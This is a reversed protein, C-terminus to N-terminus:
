LSDKASASAKSGNPDQPAATAPAGWTMSLEGVLAAEAPPPTGATGTQTRRPPGPHKRKWFSRLQGQTRMGPHPGMLWREKPYM